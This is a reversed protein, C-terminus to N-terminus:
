RSHRFANIKESRDSGYGRYLNFEIMRARKYITELFKGLRADWQARVWDRYSRFQAVILIRRADVSGLLQTRLVGELQAGPGEIFSAVDSFFRDYDGPSVELLRVVSVPADTGIPRM